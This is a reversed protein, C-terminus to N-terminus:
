GEARARRRLGRERWLILVYLVVFMAAAIGALHWGHARLYGPADTGLQAGLYALGLYRPIRAALIVLVFPIPKIGLAGACLVFVKLPMPIPVLAPIFVTLMGYRTYWERLRHARRTATRRDLYRRGGRHGLWFLFFSGVTSGVIALAGIWFASAPNVAGVVLLLADVGGPLPVGASDMLALLFVGTPGWAILTKTLTRLRNL